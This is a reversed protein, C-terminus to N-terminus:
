VPMEAEQVNFASEISAAPIAGYNELVQLVPELKDYFVVVVENERIESLAESFAQLRALTEAATEAFLPCAPDLLYLVQALELAEYAQRMSWAASADSRGTASEFLERLRDRGVREGSRFQALIAHAVAVHLPQPQFDELPLTAM